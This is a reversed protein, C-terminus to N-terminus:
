SGRWDRFDSDPRRLRAPEGGQTFGVWDFGSGPRGRELGLDRLVATGPEDAGGSRHELKTLRRLTLLAGSLARSLAGRLARWVAVRINSRVGGSQPRKGSAAVPEISQPAAVDHIFSM